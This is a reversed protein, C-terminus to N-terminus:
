HAKMINTWTQQYRPVDAIWGEIDPTWTDTAPHFWSQSTLQKFISRTDDLGNYFSRSNYESSQMAVGGERSMVWAFLLRAANPHPAQATIGWGDAIFEVDPHLYVFHVPSGRAIESFTVGDWQAGWSIPSQGSVVADRAQATNIFIVPNQAKLKRLFDEGLDTKNMIYMLPALTVGFTPEVLSIRGKFASDLVGTWDQLKAAETETVFQPNYMIVTKYRNPYYIYPALPLAAPPFEAVTAPRVAVFAKDSALKANIAADTGQFVDIRHVGAAIEELLEQAGSSGAKRELNVRIDPYVKNFDTILAQMADLPSSYQLTVEGEIKAASLLQPTSTVTEQAALPQLTALMLLQIACCLRAMQQHRRANHNDPHAM